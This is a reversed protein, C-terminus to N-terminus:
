ITTLPRTWCPTLLPIPSEGGELLGKQGLYKTQLFNEFVEAEALLSRLQEERTPLLAASWASM